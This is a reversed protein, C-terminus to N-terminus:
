LAHLRNLEVASCMLQFWSVEGPMSEYQMFSPAKVSVANSAEISPKMTMPSDVNFCFTSLLTIYFYLPLVASSM